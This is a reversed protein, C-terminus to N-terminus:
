HVLLAQPPRERSVPQGNVAGVRNGVHPQVGTANLPSDAAAYRRHSEVIRARESSSGDAGLTFEAALNGLTVSPPRRHDGGMEYAHSTGLEGQTEWILDSLESRTAVRDLLPEYRAYVAEWNVGSM